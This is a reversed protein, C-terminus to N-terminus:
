TKKKTISLRPSSPVYGLGLNQLQPSSPRYRESSLGIDNRFAFENIRSYPESFASTLSTLSDFFPGTFTPAEHKQEFAPGVDDDGLDMLTYFRSDMVAKPLPEYTPYEPDYEENQYSPNAPDYEEAQYSPNTPDYEEKYTPSTPCYSPSAPNYTPSTPNYTPSAPNYTPSTPNYIPSTPQYTPSTPNYTPSAPNYTPSTPNYIPSTPNYTPSTPNYTPSTPCYSPSAPNYTPSTPQYTPSAPNYTPSTPCYSPSAPNYTPSTPQYAPSTPQYAPSTPQYTPSNSGWQFTPSNLTPNLKARKRPPTKPSPPRLRKRRRIPGEEWDRCFYTRTLSIRPKAQRPKPIAQPDLLIHPKGTGVPIRQGLMINDSVSNLPNHEGFMAGELIIDTTREFTCKNLPGIKMKAMGHRNLGNLFGQNTMAEVITMIHRDNVYGGDFSLVTRIEHFLLMSAAEIGLTNYIEYLDNSHTTKWDVMPNAWVDRLNLGSAYIIYEQVEEMTETEANWEQRIEKDFVSGSLGKIGSLNITESLHELFLHAMTKEFESIFNKGNQIKAELNSKMDQLGGMRIRLCWEPMNVEAVRLETACQLTDLYDQIIDRVNEITMERKLLASKDLVARIVWSSAEPLTCPFSQLFEDELGNAPVVDSSEIVDVLKCEVLREKLVKVFNRNGRVV